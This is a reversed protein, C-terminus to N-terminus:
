LVILSAFKCCLLLIDSYEIKKRRQQDIANLGTISLAAAFLSFHLVGALFIFMKSYTACVRPDKIADGVGEVINSVFITELWFTGM